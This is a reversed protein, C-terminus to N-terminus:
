AQAARAAPSLALYSVAQATNGIDSPTFGPKFYTLTSTILFRLRPLLGLKADRFYARHFGIIGTRIGNPQQKALYRGSRLLLIYLTPLVFLMARARALYSPRFYEAVDHAVSRHEVEEAGHWRFMDTVVPDANHESWSNNLAFDGLVATYHELAAVLWIREVMHNHRQRATGDVKPALARRFVYRAQELLPEVTFGNRELLEPIAQAHTEAHTYEQGIFGRVDEALKPARIYPLAENFVEVFWHEGEPLLLNLGNIIHSAAPHGPIWEAASDVFEFSVQRAHIEVPGPDAGPPPAIATM